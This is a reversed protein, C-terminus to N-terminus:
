ATPLIEFGTLGTDIETTVAEVERVAASPPGIHCIRILADVDQDRGQALSEVKGDNLNRVWGHLGLDIATKRVWDRFGVGQVLGSIYIKRAITDLNINQTTTMDTM